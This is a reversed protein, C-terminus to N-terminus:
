KSIFTLWTLRRMRQGLAARLLAAFPPGALSDRGRVGVLGRSCAEPSLAMPLGILLIVFPFALGIGAAGALSALTQLFTRGGRPHRSVDCSM